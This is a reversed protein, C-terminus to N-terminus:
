LFVVLSEGATYGLPTQELTKNCLSLLFGNFNQVTTILKKSIHWLYFIKM